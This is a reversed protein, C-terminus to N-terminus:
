FSLFTQRSLRLWRIQVIQLLSDNRKIKTLVYLDHTCIMLSGLRSLLIVVGCLRGWRDGVHAHCLPRHDYAEVHVQRGVHAVNVTARKGEEVSATGNSCGV